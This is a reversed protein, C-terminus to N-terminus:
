RGGGRRAKAAMECWKLAEQEYSYGGDAAMTYWKM